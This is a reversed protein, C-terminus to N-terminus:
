GEDKKKSSVAKIAAIIDNEVATKAVRLANRITYADSRGHTVIVVGNVGLLAGGGFERYDMKKEIAKLAGRSLIAGAMAMPRSKIETKIMNAIWAGLGESVKVIVNGTFGDTVIVDALGAPIDKGEINGVFNFPADKMLAGAEVVLKSGKGEEEGTSVIGIRPNPINLAKEAYLSGMLGFQYLYEAKVETNAGVDLLFCFGHKSAAPYITSLAPRKIGKIRGLGFLAAALAGGSNGATVFAKSVGSKVQKVAVNMSANKKRRAAEVPSDTMEIVQSAPIIPLRLGDTSHRTLEAEIAEPNGVLQVEIDFDRAAWVAGHVTVEPATDGGMVDLSIIM